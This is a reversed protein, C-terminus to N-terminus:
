SEAKPQEFELQPSGPKITLLEDIAARVAIHIEDQPNLKEYQSGSIEPKWTVLQEFLIRHPEGM